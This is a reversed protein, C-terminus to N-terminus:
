EEPVRVEIEPSELLREEPVFCVRMGWGAYTSLLRGFAALSLEQDDVHIVVEGDAGGDDIFCRVVSGRPTWQDALEFYRIQPEGDPIEVVKRPFAELSALQARLTENFCGLIEGDSLSELPKGIRFRTVAVGPERYEIIAFAGERRIVVEDLKAPYPKRPRM